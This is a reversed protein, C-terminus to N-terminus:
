ASEPDIGSDGLFSDDGIRTTAWYDAQQQIYAAVSDITLEGSAMQDVIEDPVPCTWWSEYGMVYCPQGSDRDQVEIVPNDDISGVVNGVGFFERRIGFVAVPFPSVFVQETDRDTHSYGEAFEPHNRNM